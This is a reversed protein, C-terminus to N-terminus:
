TIHASAKRDNGSGSEIIQFDAFMDAGVFIPIFVEFVIVIKITAIAPYFVGWVHM